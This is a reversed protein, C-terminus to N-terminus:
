AQLYADAKARADAPSNRDYLVGVAQRVTAVAQQMAAADRQAQDM